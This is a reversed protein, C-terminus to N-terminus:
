LDEFRVTVNGEVIATAERACLAQKDYLTSIISALERLSIENNPDEPANLAKDLREEILSLSKRINSWSDNVFNEKQKRRLEAISANGNEAADEEHEAIWSTLTSRPIGLEQAVASISNSIAVMALAKEKVEESYKKGRM